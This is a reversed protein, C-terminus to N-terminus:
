SEREGPATGFWGGAEVRRYIPEIGIAHAVHDAIAKVSRHAWVAAGHGLAHEPWWANGTGAMLANDPFKGRIREMAHADDVSRDEPRFHILRNRLQVTADADKYPDSKPDLPPAGASRLISDYKELASVRGGRTIAWVEAMTRRCDDSLPAITGKEGTGQGDAADQFLENIM